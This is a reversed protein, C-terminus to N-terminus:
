ARVEGVVDKGGHRMLARTASEELGEGLETIFTERGTTAKAERLKELKIVIVIKKPSRGGQYYVDRERLQAEMAGCLALEM